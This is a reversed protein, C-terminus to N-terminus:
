HFVPRPQFYERPSAPTSTSAQYPEVWHLLTLHKSNLGTSSATLKGLTLLLPDMIRQLHAMMSKVSNGWLSRLHPTGAPIHLWRILLKLLHLHILYHNNETALPEYLQRLNSRTTFGHLAAESAATTQDQSHGKRFTSPNAPDMRIHLFPSTFSGPLASLEGMLQHHLHPQNRWYPNSYVPRSLRRASLLLLKTGTTCSFTSGYHCLTLHLHRFWKYTFYNTADAIIQHQQPPHFISNAPLRGATLIHSYDLVPHWPMLRSSKSFFRGKRISSKEFNFLHIKAQKLLWLEATKREAGTLIPMSSAAPTQHNPIVLPLCNTAAPSPAGKYILTSCFEWCWDTHSSVHSYTSSPNGLDAAMTSLTTSMDVPPPLELLEKQPPQKSNAPPPPELLEKQPPQKSTTSHPSDLLEKQPPQQPTPGPDESPLPPEERWLPLPLLEQPIIETNVCVTPHEATPVCNWSSPKSTALSTLPSHEKSTTRTHVVAGCNQLSSDSFEHLEPSISDPGTLTSSKPLQRSSLCPLGDRWTSHKKQGKEWPQQSLAMKPLVAQRSGEGPPQCDSKEPLTMQHRCSSPSFSVHNSYHHKIQSEAPSLPLEPEEALDALRFDSALNNPTETSLNPQLHCAPLRQQPPGQAKATGTIAWGFITDQAGPESASAIIPPSRGQLQLWLDAGLLIDVRGPTNFTTDALQLGLLHPYEDVPALQKSPINETVTQVVAPRCQIDRRNHLPSITVSTLHQSGKCETGQVTSFATRSAELPLKLTQAARSSILSLGAGPDIFARAKLQQGGPGKLLVEATMLLADPLQQSQSLTSSVHVPASTNQHITTHHAQGCDRCRYNSKCAATLHGVALCNACLNKSSVHSVRQEVTYSLWKPCIHLPHREPKCFACDWKYAPSSPSTPTPSVSYVHSKQKNHSQENKPNVAKKVPPDGTKDTTCVPLAEAHDQLYTLLSDISPVGKNKKTHQDWSTQLKLPLLLYITSCLLADITYHGTAKFSSILRKVQDTLKRLDM